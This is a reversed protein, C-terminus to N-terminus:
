GIVRYLSPKGALGRKILKVKGYRGLRKLLHGLADRVNKTRFQYGAEIMRSSLDAITFDANFSPLVREATTRIPSLGSSQVASAFSAGPKRRREDALQDITTAVLPQDAVSLIFRVNKLQESVSVCSHTAPM